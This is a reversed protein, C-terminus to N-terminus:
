LKHRFLNIESNSLGIKVDNLPQSGNKYVILKDYKKNLNM